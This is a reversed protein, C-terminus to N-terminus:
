VRFTGRTCLCFRKSTSAPQYRCWRNTYVVSNRCDVTPVDPLQSWNFLGVPLVSQFFASGFGSFWPAILKSGLILDPMEVNQYSLKFLWVWYAHPEFQTPAEILATSKICAIGRGGGINKWNRSNRCIGLRALSTSPWRSQPNDSYRRDSCLRDSYHRGGVTM